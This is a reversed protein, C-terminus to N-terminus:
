RWRGLEGEGGNGETRWGGDGRDVVFCLVMGDVVRCVVGRGSGALEFM